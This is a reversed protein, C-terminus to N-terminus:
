EAFFEPLIEQELMKLRGELAEAWEPTAPVNVPIVNRSTKGKKALKAWRRMAAIYASMAQSPTTSSDVVLYASPLDGVVVWLFDDIAPRSPQLHAFFVAFVGGIGCGFYFQNISVCWSFSSLFAQARESMGNLLNTDERDEGIMQSIPIVGTVPLKDLVREGERVVLIATPM